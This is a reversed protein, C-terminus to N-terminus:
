AGVVRDSANFSSGLYGHSNKRKTRVFRALKKKQRPNQVIKLIALFIERMETDEPSESAFMKCLVLM